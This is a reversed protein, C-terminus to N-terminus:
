AELQRLLRRQEALRAEYSNAAALAKRADARQSGEEALSEEVAAIWDDVGEAVRVLPAPFETFPSAVVPRGSAMYEHFKLPLGISRTMENVRYPLLLVDAHHSWRALESSPRRGVMQINKPCRHLLSDPVSQRDGVLVLIWDPRRDALGTLLGWDIRDDLAGTFLLRPKGIGLEEYPSSGARTADLVEQEVAHPLFYTRPNFRALNRQQVESTTWVMDARRCMIEELAADAPSITGYGFLDHNYYILRRHPIRGVLDSRAGQQFIVLLPDRFGLRRASQNIRRAM